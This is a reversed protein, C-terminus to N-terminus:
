IVGEQKLEYCINPIEEELRMVCDEFCTCDVCECKRYCEDEIGRYIESCEIVVKEDVNVIRV